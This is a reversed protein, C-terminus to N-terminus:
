LFNLGTISDKRHADGYTEIRNGTGPQVDSLSIEESGPAVWPERNITHSSETRESSKWTPSLDQSHRPGESRM